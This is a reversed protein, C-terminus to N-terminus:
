IVGLTSERAIGGINEFTPVHFIGSAIIKNYRIASGSKIHGADGRM